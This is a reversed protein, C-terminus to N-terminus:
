ITTNESLALERYRYTFQTDLSKFCAPSSLKVSEISGSVVNVFMPGVNVYSQIRMKSNETIKWVDSAIQFGDILLSAM